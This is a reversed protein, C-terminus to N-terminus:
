KRLNCASICDSRGRPGASYASRAYDAAQTADNTVKCYCSWHTHLSRPLAWAIRQFFRLERGPM